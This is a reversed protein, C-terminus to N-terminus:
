FCGASYNFGAISSQVSANMMPALVALLNHGKKHFLISLGFAAAGASLGIAYTRHQYMDRPLRHDYPGTPKYGPIQFQEGEGLCARTGYKVAQAMLVTSGFSLTNALILEKKQSPGEKLISQERERQISQGSALLSCLMLATILISAFFKM